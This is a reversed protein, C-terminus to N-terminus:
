CALGEAVTHHRLCVECRSVTMCTICTCHWRPHVTDRQEVSGWWNGGEVAVAVGVTPPCSMSKMSALGRGVVSFIVNFPESTVSTIAFTVVVLRVIALTVRSSLPTYWIVALLTAPNAVKVRVTSRACVNGGHTGRWHVLCVVTGGQEIFM